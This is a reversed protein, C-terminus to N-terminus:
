LVVDACLKQDCDIRNSGFGILGINAEVDSADTTFKKCNYIDYGVNGNYSQENTLLCLVESDRQLIVSYSGKPTEQVKVKEPRATLSLENNGPDESSSGQVWSRVDQESGIAITATTPTHGTIGDTPGQQAFLVTGHARVEGPGAQMNTHQSTTKEENNKNILRLSVISAEAVLLLLVFVIIWHVFGRQSLKLLRM